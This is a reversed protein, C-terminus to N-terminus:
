KNFFIVDSLVTYIIPLFKFIYKNKKPPPPILACDYHILYFSFPSFDFKLFDIYSNRITLGKLLFPYNFVWFPPHPYCM